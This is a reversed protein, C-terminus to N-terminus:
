RREEKDIEKVHLQDCDRAIKRDVDSEDAGASVVRRASQGFVCDRAVSPLSIDRITSLPHTQCTTVSWDDSM